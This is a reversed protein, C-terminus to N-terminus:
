ISALKQVLIVEPAHGLAPPVGLKPVALGTVLTQIDMWPLFSDLARIILSSKTLKTLM